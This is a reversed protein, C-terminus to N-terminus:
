LLAGPNRAPNSQRTTRAITQGSHTKLDDKGGFGNFVETQQLRINPRLYPRREFRM